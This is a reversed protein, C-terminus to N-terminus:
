RDYPKTLFDYGLSMQVTREPKTKEMANVIKTGSTKVAAVRATILIM